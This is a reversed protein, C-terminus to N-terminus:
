HADTVQSLQPLIHQKLYTTEGWFHPLVLVSSEQIDFIEQNIQGHASMSPLLESSSQLVRLFSHFLIKCFQSM